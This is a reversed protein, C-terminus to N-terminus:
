DADVPHKPDYNQDSLGLMQIINLYLKNLTSCLELREATSFSDKGDPLKTTRLLIDKAMNMAFFKEEQTLKLSQIKEIVRMSKHYEFTRDFPPEIM